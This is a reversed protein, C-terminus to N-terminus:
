LTVYVIYNKLSYMKRYTEIKIYQINCKTECKYNTNFIITSIFIVCLIMKIKNTKKTCIIKNHIYM